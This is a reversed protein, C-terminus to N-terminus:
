RTVGSIELPVDLTAHFPDGKTKFTTKCYRCRAKDYDKYGFAHPHPAFGVGRCKCTPCVVRGGHLDSM